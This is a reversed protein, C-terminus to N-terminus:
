GSVDVNQDEYRTWELLRKAQELTFWSDNASEAAASGSSELERGIEAFARDLEDVTRARTYKGGTIRALERLSEENITTPVNGYSIVGNTGQMPYPATDAQGGTAIVNVRVGLRRATHAATLPNVGGSNNDGDTILTITKLSSGTDLLQRCASLVASGIATGDEVEGIRINTLVKLLDARNATPEAAVFPKGAFGVVGISSDGGGQVFRRAASRVAELRNQREGGAYFDEALMSRSLDLALVEAAKPPLLAPNGSKGNADFPKSPDFVPATASESPSRGGLQNLFGAVLVLGVFGAFAVVAVFAAFLKRKYSWSKGSNERRADHAGKSLYAVVRQPERKLEMPKAVPSSLPELSASKVGSDLQVLWGKVTQPREEPRVRLAWDVSQKFTEAYGPLQMYSLWSFGDDLVRDAAVPPKEGTMARCMMAGMAYIDTWPGMRGKTQYQEIPSYGHTVISTMTMTKGLSQRASGFDILVPQGRSNILINEPKIDRHLLGKAHVEELGNLIPGMVAMLAGQDPERGIRRLRAEYSEGELYDMVMYVTGHAEMLLHVGVIAPHSFGALVRAEELFRERAWQWNDALSSSQPVVTYGEVRTAISDPLLEKIAVRKGLRLDMALYTIGFGGKGLVSEIRFHDLQYGSPLALRHEQM